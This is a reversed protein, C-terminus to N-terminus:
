EPNKKISNESNKRKHSTYCNFIDGEERKSKRSM